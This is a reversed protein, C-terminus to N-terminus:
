ENLWRNLKRELKDIDIPKSLYDNMGAHLCKERDGKMANATMALIPVDKMAKGASGNRIKQTAQYGDMVPMQCDMLVLDYPQDARSLTEIAQQGNEVIEPVIGLDELIGLAVEQNILNDEVLLIHSNALTDTSVELRNPQAVENSPQNTQSNNPDANLEVSTLYSLPLSQLHTRTVPKAIDTDFGMAALDFSPQQDSYESMLIFRTTSLPQRRTSKILHEAVNNFHHDIFFLDFESTSNIRALAETSSTVVTVKAGMQSLLQETIHQATDHPDLILINQNIYIGNNLVSKPKANVALAMTLAFSSGVGIKSTVSINGALLECLRKVIALGLGTGGYERTTSSDAQTFSKFLQNVKNKDIGMGTDKISCSFYQMENTRVQEPLVQEPLLNNPLTNNLPIKKAQTRKARTRKSLKERRQIDKLQQNSLPQLAATITIEGQHTFKIANSILNTLIQRIRGPDSSVLTNNLELTDLTIQLGKKHAPHAMAAVVEEIHTLLDFEVQELHMKGAEIKSFDLIDDILTLLSDASSYAMNAYATQQDTLKSKMILRLMGLVGNMPTRIEHSMSAFFVNKTDAAQKSIEATLKEENFRKALGTSIIIATSLMGFDFYNIIYPSRPVLGLSAVFGLAICFGFILFAALIFQSGAINRQYADISAYISISPVLFLVLMAGAPFYTFAPLVAIVLAGASSVHLIKACNGPWGSLTLYSSVFCGVMAFIMGLPFRIMFTNIDPSHPWLYQFGIGSYSIQFLLFSALVGFATLFAPEKSTLYIVLNFMMLLCFFGLLLGSILQNKAFKSATSASRDLIIEGQIMVKSSLRLLIFHEGPLLPIPFTWQPNAIPRDVFPKKNGGHFETVIKGNVQHFFDIEELHTMGLNLHWLSENSHSLEKAQENISSAEPDPPIATNHFVLKIWLKGKVFGLNLRPSPNPRFPLSKGLLDKLSFEANKDLLYEIHTSVNVPGNFTDDSANFIFPQNIDAIATTAHFLYCYITVLCFLLRPCIDLLSQGLQRIPQKINTPTQM